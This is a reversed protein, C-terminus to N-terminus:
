KKPGPDPIPSETEKPQTSLARIEAIAYGYIQRKEEPYPCPSTAKAIHQLWKELERCRAEARLLNGYVKTYNAREDKVEQEAREARAKWADRERQANALRNNLKDTESLYPTGIDSM